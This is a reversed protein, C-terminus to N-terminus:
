WNFICYGKRLGFQAGFLIYQIEITIERGTLGMVNVEQLKVRDGVRFNRDNKRIEFKKKGYSIEDFFHGAIKLEHTM